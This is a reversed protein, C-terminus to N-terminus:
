AGRKVPLLWQLRHPICLGGNADTCSAFSAEVCWPGDLRVLEAPITVSLPMSASRSTRQALTAGDRTVRVSWTADPSLKSDAPLAINLTLAIDRGETIEVPQCTQAEDASDDVEVPALGEFAVERWAHTCLDCAVVRHNNTDAVFLKGQAITAGAPESYYWQALSAAFLHVFFQTM